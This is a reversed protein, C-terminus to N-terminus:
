KYVAFLQDALLQNASLQNAFLQNAFLQNAIVKVRLQYAQNHCCSFSKLM